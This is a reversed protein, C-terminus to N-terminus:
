KRELGIQFKAVDKDDTNILKYVVSTRLGPYVMTPGAAKHYVHGSMLVARNTKYEVVNILNFEQTMEDQDYFFLNGEYHPSWDPTVFYVLSLANNLLKQDQHISGDQGRSQGNAYMDYHTWNIDKPLVELVKKKFAINFFPVQDLKGMHWIQHHGSLFTWKPKALEEMCTAHMHKPLFNDFTKIKDM